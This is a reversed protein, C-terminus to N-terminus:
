FYSAMSDLDLCEFCKFDLVAAGCPNVRESDLQLEQMCALAQAAFAENIEITDFKALTEAYRSCLKRIAHVPGLGMEQPDCGVVSGASVTALVPWGHADATARSAVVLM